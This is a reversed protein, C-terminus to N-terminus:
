QRILWGGSERDAAFCLMITVRNCNGEKENAYQAAAELQPPPQFGFNQYRPMLEIGQLLACVGIANADSGAPRIWRVKDPILDRGGAPLAFAYKVHRSPLRIL